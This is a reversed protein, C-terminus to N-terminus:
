VGFLLGDIKMDIRYYDAESEFSKIFSLIEKLINKQRDNFIFVKGIIEEDEASFKKYIVDSLEKINTKNKASTKIIEGSFIERVKKLSIKQPLDIKNIVCIAKEPRLNKLAGKEDDYIEEGADLVYIVGDAKEIELLAREIGRAEVGQAGNKIGATDVVEFPMGGIAVRATVVDRTTGPTEDVISREIGALANVISSKGVNPRGAVVIRKKRLLNKGRECTSILNEIRSICEEKKGESNPIEKALEKLKLVEESLKGQLLNAFALANKETRANVLAELIEAQLKGEKQSAFDKWSIRHAGLEVFLSLIAEAAVIGGHCNVDYEIGEEDCCEVIVEDIIADNRKILGYFLKGRPNKKFLRENKPYFVKSMMDRSAGGYLKIVSIGGEGVPTLLSVYTANNKKM